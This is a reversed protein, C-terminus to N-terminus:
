LLFRSILEFFVLKIDNEVLWDLDINLGSTCCDKSGLFFFLIKSVIFLDINLSPCECLVRVSYLKM